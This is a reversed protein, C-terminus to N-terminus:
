CENGLATFAAPMHTLQTGHHKDGLDAIRSIERHQSGATNGAAAPYCRSKHQAGAAYLHACPKEAGPFACDMGIILFFNQFGRIQTSHDGSFTQPM